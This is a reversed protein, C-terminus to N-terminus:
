ATLLLFLGIAALWLVAQTAAQSHAGVRLALWLLRGPGRAGSPRETPRTLDAPRSPPM